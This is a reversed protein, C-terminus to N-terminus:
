MLILLIVSLIIIIIVFGIFREKDSIRDIRTTEEKIDEEKIEEAKGEETDIEEEEVQTPTLIYEVGDIMVTKSALDKSQKKIKQTGTINTIVVYLVFVITIIAGFIIGGTEITEDNLLGYTSSFILTLTVFNLLLTFFGM